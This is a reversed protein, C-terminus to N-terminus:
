SGVETRARRRYAHPLEYSPVHTLRSPHFETESDTGCVACFYRGSIVDRGTMPHACRARPTIRARASQQIRFM